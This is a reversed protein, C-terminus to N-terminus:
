NFLNLFLILIISIVMYFLYVGVNGTQMYRINRGAWVVANGTNDVFWDIIRIEIVDHLFKSLHAVPKQVISEYLEDIYYKHAIMNEIWFMQRKTQDATKKKIYLIYTIYISLIILALPIMMLALETQSSTEAPKLKSISESAAFVPSLFEGIKDNGGLLQPIGIIGGLISLAALVAMPITMSRPSEHVAHHRHDEKYHAEGWFVIFLLRFMYVATM